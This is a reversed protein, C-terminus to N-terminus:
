DQGDPAGLFDYLVPETGDPALKFVTGCGAPEQCNGDTHGGGYTTSYLNGDKDAILAAAPYDGDTCLSKSCFDHLVTLEGAHGAGCSLLLALATASFPIQGAARRFVGFMPQRRKHASM